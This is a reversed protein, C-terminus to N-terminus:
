HLRFEAGIAKVEAPTILRNHAVRVSHLAGEIERRWFDIFRQLAPFEPFLDYDQWVFEQLLHPHDPMRYLINATTLGYGELQRRFQHDVMSVEPQKWEGVM